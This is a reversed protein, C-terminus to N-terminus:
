NNGQARESLRAQRGQPFLRGQAPGQVRRVEPLGRPLGQRPVVGVQGQWRRHGERLDLM